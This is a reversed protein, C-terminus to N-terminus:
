TKLPKAVRHIAGRRGRGSPAAHARISKLIRHPAECPDVGPIYLQTRPIIRPSLSVRCFAAMPRFRFPHPTPILDLPSNGSMDIRDPHHPALLSLRFFSPFRLQSRQAKM